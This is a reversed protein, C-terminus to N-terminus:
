RVRSATRKRRIGFEDLSNKRATVIVFNQRREGRGIEASKAGGRCFTADCDGLNAFNRAPLPDKEPTVAFHERECLRRISVKSRTGISASVGPLCIAHSSCFM